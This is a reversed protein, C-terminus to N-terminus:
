SGNKTSRPKRVKKLVFCPYDFNLGKEEKFDLTFGHVGNDIAIRGVLGVARNMSPSIWSNGWGKEDTKARRTVEVFDGKKLGSAEHLEIYTKTRRM